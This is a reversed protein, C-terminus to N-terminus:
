SKIILRYRKFKQYNNITIGILIKYRNTGLYRYYDISDGVALTNLSYYCCLHTAIIKSYSCFTQKISPSLWYPYQSM